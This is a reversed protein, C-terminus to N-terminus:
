LIEKKITNINMRQIKYKKVDFNEDNVSTDFVIM